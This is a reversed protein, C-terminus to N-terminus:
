LTRLQPKAAPENRICPSVGPQNSALRPPADPDAMSSLPRPIRTTTGPRRACHSRRRCAPRAAGSGELRAGGIAQHGNSKRPPRMWFDTPSPPLWRHATVRRCGRRGPLGAGPGGNRAHSCITGRWRVAAQVCGPQERSTTAGSGLVACRGDTEGAEIRFGPRGLRCQGRADHFRSM